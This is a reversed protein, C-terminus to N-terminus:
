RAKVEQATSMFTRTSIFILLQDARAAGVSCFRVMIVNDSMIKEEIYIEWVM